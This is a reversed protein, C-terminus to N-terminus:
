SGRRGLSLRSQKKVRLSESHRLIELSPLHGKSAGRASGLNWSLLPFDVKAMTFESKGYPPGVKVM